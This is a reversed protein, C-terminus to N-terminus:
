LLNLKQAVQSMYHNDYNKVITIIESIANYGPTSTDKTSIM